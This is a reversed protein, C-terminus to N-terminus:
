ERNDWERGDAVLLMLINATLNSGNSERADRTDSTDTLAYGKTTFM